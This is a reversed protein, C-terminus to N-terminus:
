LPKTGHYCDGRTLPSGSGSVPGCDHPSATLLQGGISLWGSACTSFTGQSENYVMWEFLRISPQSCGGQFFSPAAPVQPSVAPKAEHSRGRCGMHVSPLQGEVSEPHLAPTGARDPDDLRGRNSRPELALAQPVPGLGGARPSRRGDGPGRSPLFWVRLVAMLGVASVALGALFGAPRYRFVVTHNGPPLAVARFAVYAPHIPAPTGDVTASWGPDFTDALVLYAPGPSGTEVVVHEPLDTVIRATGSVEASPSLPRSPDEVILRKRSEPGLAELAKVGEAATAVYVPRGALRARPLASTNRHVFASGVPESPRFMGRYNRGTVVHSVSEIDLRGTGIKVADFYDLLRRPIMPTEGKSAALGWAAPLSWDLADRASLFDIPESAYGPEGSHKDGDGFVRIFSPDAKLRRATEPPSTWYAPDVTPVDRFHAAALDVLVLIPFVWAIRTRRTPDVTWAAWSAAAFGLVVLIANRAAALSMERGLWQYRALHYPQTWRRPETWVPAYVYLLIPISAVVLAATLVLAGRLRVPGPRALREVGVAALAAVALSVWLHFRVPERSSGLVPIRHALDFLCTFKGLMLVGGVGALLVWFCIWRDRRGPGGTGLVALSLGVLGLYADMEHYPYFGDLWDTDRARTGYAEHVVLTPLLEPSWSGYTLEEYTLGGARPSRDLLEKSPIWQVASLVVGLGILGAAMGLDRWGERGAPGTALRYLGYSAVIGMTLLVDQLHGAFVQCAMALAGLVVGRWRGSEWSWELGWVVLPVSALANIMSTHVLHAWTFGGLGFLAAGTLAASPRVHRRLWGYTGLGTLWVSLVTDLNFAKWTEMWPYLLYKLPHLYGAQSESFLPM